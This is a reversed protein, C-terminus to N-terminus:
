TAKNNRFYMSQQVDPWYKKIIEMVKHAIRYYHLHNRELYSDRNKMKAISLFYCYSRTLVIGIVCPSKPFFNIKIKIKMKIVHARPLGNM